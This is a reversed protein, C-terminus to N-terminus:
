ASQRRGRATSGRARDRCATRGGAPCMRVQGRPVLGHSHHHRARVGCLGRLRATMSAEKPVNSGNLSMTRAINARFISSALAARARTFFNRLGHCAIRTIMDIADDSLSFERLCGGCTGGIGASTASSAIQRAPSRDGVCVSIPTLTHTRHRHTNTMTHIADPPRHLGDCAYVRSVHKKERCVCAM